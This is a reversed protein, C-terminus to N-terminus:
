CCLPCGASCAPYLLGWRVQSAALDIGAIDGDGAVDLLALRLWSGDATRYQGVHVAMNGPPSCNVQPALSPPRRSPTSRPYIALTKM